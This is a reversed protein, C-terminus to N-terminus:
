NYKNYLEIYLAVLSKYDESSNIMVVAQNTEYASKKEKLITLETECVVSRTFILPIFNFLRTHRFSGTHTLM